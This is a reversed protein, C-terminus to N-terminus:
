PRHGPPPLLGAQDLYAAILEAKVRAGHRTVHHNDFWLRQEDGMDAALDYIPASMTEALERLIENHEQVARFRAEVRPRDMNYLPAFKFTVLVPVVGHERGAAVLSRVNRRFHEPGHERLLERFENGGLSGLH